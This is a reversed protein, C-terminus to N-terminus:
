TEHKEKESYCENSLMYVYLLCTVDTSLVLGQSHLLSFLLDGSQHALAFPRAEFGFMSNSATGTCWNKIGRHIIEGFFLWYMHGKKQKNLIGQQKTENNLAFGTTM